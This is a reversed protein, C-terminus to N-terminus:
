ARLAEKEAEVKKKVAQISPIKPIAEVFDMAQANIAIKFKGCLLQISHLGTITEKANEMTTLAAMDNKVLRNIALNILSRPDHADEAMVDDEEMEIGLMKLKDM